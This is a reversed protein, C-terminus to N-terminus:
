SLQATEITGANQHLTSAEQDNDSNLVRGGNSAWTGRRDTFFFSEAVWAIENSQVDFM